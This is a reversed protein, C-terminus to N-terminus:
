SEEDKSYGLSELITQLCPQCKNKWHSRLTKDPISVGLNQFERHIQALREPPEQLLLKQSLVQCNCDPFKRPHLKSLIQDPDEEIYRELKQWIKEIEKKRLNELYADLGSLKPPDFGTESIQELLTSPNESSENIFVDLSLVDRNQRYLDKIRWSLYGNIWKVLSEQLSLHPRQQFKCINQIVWEWTRDLAELYYPHSSKLLGPLEQLEFLLRNISQLRDSSTLNPNNCIRARLTQFKENTIAMTKKYIILSNNRSKAEIKRQEEESLNRVEIVRSGELNELDGSEFLEQIRQLGEETGKITFKISGEEVDVIEITLDKGRKQLSQVLAKIKAKDLSDFEGEILILKHQKHQEDHPQRNGFYLGPVLQESIGAMQIARCGLNFAFDYSEGAGLADYFGVAFKIAARDGIGQKMGVVYDIHQSIALAQTESYCANLIVCEVCKAFLEFLSALAKANVFKVEGTENEFALGQNKGGHGSFHVIQPRRDLIARYVDRPRVAWQSELTFLERKKSRQLGEEIERVEEDLRLKSTGKPNAALVLITKPLTPELKM